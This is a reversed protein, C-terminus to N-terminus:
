LAKQMRELCAPELNRVAKVKRTPAPFSTQQGDRFLLPRWTEPVEPQMVPSNRYRNVLADLGQNSRTWAMDLPQAGMGAVSPTRGHFAAVARVALDHSTFNLFAYGCPLGDRFDYPLYVFDCAQRFGELELFQLLDARCSQRSINAMVVSTQPVPPSVEIEAPAAAVQKEARTKKGSRCGRRRRKPEKSDAGPLRRHMDADESGQSRHSTSRSASLEDEFESLSESWGSHGAETEDESQTCAWPKDQVASGEAVEALGDDWTIHSLDGPESAPRRAAYVPADLEWFTRRIVASLEASM